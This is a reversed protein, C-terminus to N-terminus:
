DFKAMAELASSHTTCFEAKERGSDHAKNIKVMAEPALEDDNGILVEINKRPVMLTAVSVYKHSPYASCTGGPNEWSSIISSKDLTRM